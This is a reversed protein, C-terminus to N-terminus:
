KVVRAFTVVFIKGAGNKRLIEACESITAGTTFVDDVILINKGNIKNPNKVDFAGQVNYKREKMSLHGQSQKFKSRYLVNHLVSKKTHISIENALLSSQNYKRKLMRKLHIPVPMIFDIEKIFPSVTASMMRGMVKAYNTKDAHKFPLIIQKAADNYKVVSVCKHFKPKSKICNPCIFNKKKIDKDAYMIEFPYGCYVCKPDTIFDIKNLCEFCIGDDNEIFTKCIICQAPFIFNVIKNCFNKFFSVAVM